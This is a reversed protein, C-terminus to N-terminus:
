EKEFPIFQDREDLPLPPTATVTKIKQTTKAKTPLGYKGRNELRDLDQPGGNTYPDPQNYKTAREANQTKRQKNLKKAVKKKPGKDMTGPGQDETKQRRDETKEMVVTASEAIPKENELDEMVIQDKIEEIEEPVAASPVTAAPKAGWSKTWRESGWILGFLALLILMNGLLSPSKPQSKPNILTITQQDKETM